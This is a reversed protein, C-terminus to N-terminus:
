KIFDLFQILNDIDVEKLSFIDPKHILCFQTFDMQKFDRILATVNSVRKLSPYIVFDDVYFYTVVKQKIRIQCGTFNKNISIDHNIDIMIDSLQKSRELIQFFFDYKQELENM